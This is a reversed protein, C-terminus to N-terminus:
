KSNISFLKFEAQTMVYIDTPSQATGKASVFGNDDLGTILAPNGKIVVMLTETGKREPKVFVYEERQPRAVGGMYLQEWSLTRNSRCHIHTAKTAKKKSFYVKYEQGKEGFGVAKYLQNEELIEGLNNCRQYLSMTEDAVCEMMDGVDCDLASCIRAITDTTVTQNKSLKALVRSSIGTVNLLDTKTMGKDILLKWLNSYDIYM